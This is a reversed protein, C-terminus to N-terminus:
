MVDKMARLLKTQTDKLYDYRTDPSVVCLEVLELNLSKAIDFAQVSGDVSPKSGEVGIMIRRFTM